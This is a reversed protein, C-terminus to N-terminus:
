GDCGVVLKLDRKIEQDVYVQCVGALKLGRGTSESVYIGGCDVELKLGRRCELIDTVLYWHSFPGMFIMGVGTKWDPLTSGVGMKGMGISKVGELIILVGHGGGAHGEDVVADGAGEVADIELGGVDVAGFVFVENGVADGDVVPQFGVVFALFGVGEGGDFGGSAAWAEHIGVYLLV